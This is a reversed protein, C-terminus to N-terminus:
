ATVRQMFLEFIRNASVGRTWHEEAVRTYRHKIRRRKMTGLCGRRRKTLRQPYFAMDAGINISWSGDIM